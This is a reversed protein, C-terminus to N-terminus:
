DFRILIDDSHKRVAKLYSELAAIAHDEQTASGSSFALSLLGDSELGACCGHRLIEFGKLQRKLVVDVDSFYIMWGREHRPHDM